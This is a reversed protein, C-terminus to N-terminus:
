RKGRWVRRPAQASEALVDFYEVMSGDYKSDLITCDYKALKFAQWERLGFKRGRATDYSCGGDPICSRVVWLHFDVEESVRSVRSGDPSLQVKTVMTLVYRGGFYSVTHWETMSDKQHNGYEILFHETNPFATEMDIASPIQTRGSKVANIYTDDNWSTANGCGVSLLLVTLSFGFVDVLQSLM